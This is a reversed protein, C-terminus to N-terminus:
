RGDIMGRGMVLIAIVVAVILWHIPGFASWPGALTM